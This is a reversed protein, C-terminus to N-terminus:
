MASGTVITSRSTREEDGRAFVTIGEGHSCKAPNSTESLRRSEEGVRVVLSFQQILRYNVESTRAVSTRSCWFLARDEALRPSLCGSSRTSRGLIRKSGFDHACASPWIRHGMAIQSYASWCMAELRSILLYWNGKNVRLLRKSVSLNWVRRSDRDPVASWRM